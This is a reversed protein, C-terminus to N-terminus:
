LLKGYVKMQCTPCITFMVRQGRRKGWTAWWRGEGAKVLQGCQGCQQDVKNPEPTWTM